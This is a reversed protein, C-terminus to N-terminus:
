ADSEPLGQGCLDASLGDFLARPTRYLSVGLTELQERVPSKLSKVLEGGLRFEAAPLDGELLASVLEPAHEPSSFPYLPFGSARRRTVRAVVSAPAMQYYCLSRRGAVGNLESLALLLHAFWGNYPSYPAGPDLQCDALNLALPYQFATHVVETTLLAADDSNRWAPKATLSERSVIRPSQSLMREYRFPSLGVAMNVRLISDRKFVYGERREKPIQEQNLVAYGFFFDDVYRDADPYDAYSVAPQASARERRRNSPLGYGALMERLAHRLSESSVVPYELDGVALKQLPKHNGDGEGTFNSTPAAYSVSCLFLNM